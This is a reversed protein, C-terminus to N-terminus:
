VGVDCLYTPEINVSESVSVLSSRFIDARHDLKRGVICSVSRSKLKSHTDELCVSTSEKWFPSVSTNKILVFAPPSPRFRVAAFLTM